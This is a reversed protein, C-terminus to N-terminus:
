LRTVIEMVILCLFDIFAQRCFRLYVYSSYLFLIAGFIDCPHISPRVFSLSMMMMVLALRNMYVSIHRSVVIVFPVEDIERCASCM